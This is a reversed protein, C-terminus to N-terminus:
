RMVVNQVTDGLPSVDKDRETPLKGVPCPLFHGLEENSPGFWKEEKVRWFELQKSINAMLYYLRCSRTTM